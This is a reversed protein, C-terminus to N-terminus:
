ARYDRADLFVSPALHVWLVLQDWPEQAELLERQEESALKVKRVLSVLRVLSEKM